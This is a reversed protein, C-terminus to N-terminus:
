GVVTVRREDRAAPREPAPREAPQRGLRVAADLRLGTSLWLLLDHLRLRSLRVGTHREAAAALDDFADRCARVERAVQAAPGSDGERLHPWLRRDTGPSTLPVLDPRRHHVAALVHHPHGSRDARVRLERLAAGVTGPEALVSFEDDPLADLPRGAAREAAATVCPVVDDLAARVAAWGPRDLRGHLGEAVLVDRDCPPGENPALADFRDFGFAAVRVWRGTREHPARFLLPQKGRAYGVVADVATRFPVPDPGASPLHLALGDGQDFDHM